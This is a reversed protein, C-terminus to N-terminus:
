KAEDNAIQTQEALYTLLAERDEIKRLGAYSMRTGPLYKRPNELYASLTELTWVIDTDSMASSYAFGDRAGAESGIIEWLNPGVKHRGGQELTHCSKCRTFLTKGRMAPTVSQAIVPKEPAAVTSKPTNEPSTEPSGSCANVM